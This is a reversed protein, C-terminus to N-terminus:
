QNVKSKDEVEGRHGVINFFHLKTNEKLNWM